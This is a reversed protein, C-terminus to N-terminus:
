RLSEEIEAWAQELWLAIINAHLGILVPGVARGDIEVRYPVKATVPRDAYEPTTQAKITPTMANM